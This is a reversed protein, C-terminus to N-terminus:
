RGRMARDMERKQDRKKMDARKDFLKKGRGLAITIKILGRDNFYIGLPVLTLGKQTVHKEFKRIERKKLLLRREGASSWGSHGGM